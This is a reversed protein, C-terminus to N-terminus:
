SDHGIGTAFGAFLRDRFSEHLQPLDIDKGAEPLIEDLDLGEILADLENVAAILEDTTLGDPHEEIWQQLLLPVEDRPWEAPIMDALAGPDATVLFQHALDLAEDPSMDLADLPATWQDEHLIDELAAWDVLGALPPIAEGQANADTAVAAFAAANLESVVMLADIPSLSGDGNVDLYHHAAESAEGSAHQHRELHRSGRHNLDQILALVDLPTTEGDDNVDSPKVANRWGRVVEITVTAEDTGGNGDSITYTFSDEGAFGDAPAYLLSRGDDAIAIEGGKASEGMAAVITWQGRDPFTGDNALVDMPNNASNRDVAFHDDRASRGYYVEGLPADPALIEHAKVTDRSISFLVDGIRVSRRVHSEHEIQGLLEIKDTDALVDIRFLWLASQHQFRPADLSDSAEGDAPEVLPDPVPGYTNLPIALVAHEPFYSIAHHDSFAESWAR